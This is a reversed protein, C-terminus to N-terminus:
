RDISRGIKTERWYLFIEVGIFLVVVVRKGIQCMLFDNSFQPFEM